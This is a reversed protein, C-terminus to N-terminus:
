PRGNDPTLTGDEQEERMTEIMTVVDVPLPEGDRRDLIAQRHARIRDLAALRRQQAAEADRQRSALQAALFERIVDSLSRNEDAAIERLAEHQEPELLIQTRRLRETM